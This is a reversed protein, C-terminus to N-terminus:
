PAQSPRLRVLAAVQVLVIGATAVIVGLLQRADIPERLVAWAIAAAVLPISANMVSVEFPQVLALARAYVAYAIATNVAALWVLSALSAQAVVPSRGTLLVVGLLAAGGILLSTASLWQGSIGEDLARRMLLLYAATAVNSISFESLATSPIAAVTAPHVFSLTGLVIVGLGALQPATPARRLAISGLVLV